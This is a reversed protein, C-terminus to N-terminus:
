YYYVPLDMSIGLQKTALMRRPSHTLCLYISSSFVSSM